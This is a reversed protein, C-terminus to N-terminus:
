LPILKVTSVALEFAIIFRNNPPRTIEVEIPSLIADVCPLAPSFGSYAFGFFLM